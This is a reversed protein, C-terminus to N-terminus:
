RRVNGGEVTHFASRFRNSGPRHSLNARLTLAHLREWILPDTVQHLIVANCGM